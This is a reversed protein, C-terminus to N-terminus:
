HRNIRIFPGMISLSTQTYTEPSKKTNKTYEVSNVTTDNKKLQFVRSQPAM